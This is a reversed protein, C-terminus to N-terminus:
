MNRHNVVKGGTITLVGADGLKINEGKVEISVITHYTSKIETVGDEDESERVVYDYEIIDNSDDLTTEYLYFYGVEETYEPMLMGDVFITYGNKPHSYEMLQSGDYGLGVLYSADGYSIVMDAITITKGELTGLFNEPDESYQTLIDWSTFTIVDTKSESKDQDTSNTNSSCSAFLAILCIGILINKM